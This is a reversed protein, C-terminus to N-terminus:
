DDDEYVIDEKLSKIIKSVKGQSTRYILSNNNNKSKINKILNNESKKNINLSNKNLCYM